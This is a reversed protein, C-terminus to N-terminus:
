NKVMKFTEALGSTRTIKVVYIGAPLNKVVIGKTQIMAFESRTFNSMEQGTSNIIHIHQIKSWDSVNIQFKDSVPNPFISTKPVDFILSRIGSYAYSQDKDVMQLRYLNEGSSPDDANFSYSFGSVTKGNAAVRGVNQWKKGDLSHQIEFFDANTESSTIWTLLATQNEKVASFSILTVPLASQAAVASIVRIDTSLTNSIYHGALNVTSGVTTVYAGDTIGSKAIQLNAEINGNLESPLYFLGIVGQFNFVENFSYVRTISNNPSGPISETSTQLTKNNMTLVETTTMTLGELSITTGNQLVANEPGFSIQAYGSRAILVCFCSLGFTFIKILHRNM